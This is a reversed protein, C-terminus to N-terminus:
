RPRIGRRARKGVIEFDDDAERNKRLAEQRLRTQHLRRLDILAGNPRFSDLTSSDLPPKSTTSTSRAPIIRPLKIPWDESRTNSPNAVPRVVAPKTALSAATSVQPCITKREPPNGAGSELPPGAPTGAAQLRMAARVYEKRAKDKALAKIPDFATKFVM